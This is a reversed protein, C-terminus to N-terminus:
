RCHRAPRAGHVLWTPSAARRAARAVLCFAAGPPARTGPVGAHLWGGLGGERPPGDSTNRAAGLLLPAGPASRPGALLRPQGGPPGQWFVSLLAQRRVRAPCPASRHALSCAPRGKGCFLFCRRPACAHRARRRSTLGGAGRRKPPWRIHEASRKATLPLPAGPASRHALSCAPRCRRAAGAHRTRRRSTLGGAGRRKPPCRIHEPSRRAATARRARETSWGPPRPQVGPPGQWLFLFCRRAACAHRARRRVFLLAHM